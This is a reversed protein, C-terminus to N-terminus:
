NTMRFYKDFVALAVLKEFKKDNFRLIYEHAHNIIAKAKEPHSNYYAVKEELDSYDDKICIFHHDPILTGEMFWTEYKPMPMIAISNSSMVWKLNSAVDNGELAMIYKYKLHRYLSTIEKQRWEQPCDSDGRTTDKLDCFPHNMYMQLFKKRNAKGKVDGRFIVHDAKDEWKFPDNIFLFHRTKDQNILVSNANDDGIPRSKVVTPFDFLWTVDGDQHLWRMGAPFYRTYENTDFFYASHVDKKRFTHDKLIRADDPLSTKGSLKCCYNVRTELLAKRDEDLGNIKAKYRSLRSRTIIRPTADRLVGKIIDFLNVNKHIGRFYTYYFEHLEM